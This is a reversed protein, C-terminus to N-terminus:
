EVAQGSRELSVLRWGRGQRAAQFQVHDAGDVEFIGPMPGPKAPVLDELAVANGKRDSLKSKADVSMRQSAITVTRNVLDVDEVFGVGKEVGDAGARAVAATALVIMSVAVLAATAIRHKRM